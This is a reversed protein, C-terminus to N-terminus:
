DPGTATARYTLSRGSVNRAVRTVDIRGPMSPADISPLNLQPGLKADAALRRMREAGVEFPGAPTHEDEKVVTTKATTMLASQVQGPTWQPHLARLLAGAGAVHPSAMSTGALAQFYEGPPGDSTEEPVPTMGALI